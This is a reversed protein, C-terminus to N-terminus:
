RHQQSGSGDLVKRNQGNPLNLPRVDSGPYVASTDMQAQYEPTCPLIM